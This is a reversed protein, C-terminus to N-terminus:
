MSLSPPPLLEGHFAYRLREGVEPDDFSILTYTNDSYLHGAPEGYFDTCVVDADGNKIFAEADDGSFKGNGENSKVYRFHGLSVFFALEDAPKDFDLVEGQYFRWVLGRKILSAENEAIWRNGGNDDIMYAKSSPSGAYEGYSIRKIITQKGNELRVHDGEWFKTDPLEGKKAAIAEKKRGGVPKLSTSNLTKLSGNIDVVPWSFNDYMGPEYCYNNTRGYYIEEFGVIVGIVPEAGSKKKDSPVIKVQDGVLGVVVHTRQQKKKTEM